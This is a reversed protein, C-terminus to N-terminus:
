IMSEGEGGGGRSRKWVIVRVPVGRKILLKWENEGMGSEEGSEDVLGTINSLQVDDQGEILPATDTPIDSSHSRRVTFQIWDLCYNYIKVIQIMVEVKQLPERVIM